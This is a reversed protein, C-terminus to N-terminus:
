SEASGMRLVVCHRFKYGGDVLQIVVFAWSEFANGSLRLVDKESTM